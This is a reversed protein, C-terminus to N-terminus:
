REQGAPVRFVCRHRAAATPRPLLAQPLASSVSSRDPAHCLRTEFLLGARVPAEPSDNPAPRDGIPYVIRTGSASDPERGPDTIYEIAVERMSAGDREIKKDMAMYASSAPMAASITSIVYANGPAVAYTSMGATGTFKQSCRCRWPPVPWCTPESTRRMGNCSYLAPPEQPQVGAGDTSRVGQRLQQRLVEGHRELSQRACAWSTMGPREMTEITFGDVMKAREADLAAQEATSM